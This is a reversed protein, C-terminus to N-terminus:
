DKRDNSRKEKDQKKLQMIFADLWSLESQVMSVSHDFLAEVHFPLAGQGDRQWKDKVEGLSAQLAKRRTTLAHLIEEPQLATMNALALDFDATHPRPSSLRVLVAKRYVEGGTENLQYVKRTPKTEDNVRRSQLWGAVELKNLIYYISSFGIETWNRMGREELCREIDYGYRDTEAILGLIVLEANTLDNSM